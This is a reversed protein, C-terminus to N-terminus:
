LFDLYRKQPSIKELKFFLRDTIVEKTNRSDTSSRLFTKNMINLYKVLPYRKELLNKGKRLPLASLLRQNWQLLDQLKSEMICYIRGISLIGILYSNCLFDKLLFLPSPFSAIEWFPLREVSVLFSDYCPFIQLLKCVQQLIDKSEGASYGLYFYVIM